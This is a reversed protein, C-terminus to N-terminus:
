RKRESFKSITRSGFWFSIVASFLTQTEADLIVDAIKLLDAGTKIAYSLLCIKTALFMFFFIYTIFPRVSARLSQIWGATGTLSMDHDYLKKIEDVDAALGAEQKRQDGEVKIREIETEAKVKLLAAEAGMEEIKAKREQKKGVIDIVGTAIASGLGIISGAIVSM